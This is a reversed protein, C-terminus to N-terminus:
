RISSLTKYMKNAPYYQPNIRLCNEVSKKANIKDGILLYYEVYLYHLEVDNYYDGLSRDLFIKAEKPYGNKLLGRGFFKYSENNTGQFRQAMKLINNVYDFKKAKILLSLDIELFSRIQFYTPYEVVGQCINILKLLWDNRVSNKTEAVTKAEKLKGLLLLCYAYELDYGNKKFFDICGDIEIRELKELAEKYEM